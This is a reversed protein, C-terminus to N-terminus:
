SSAAPEGSVIALEAIRERVGDLCSIQVSLAALRAEAHSLEGLVSGSYRHPQFARQRMSGDKTQLVVAKIRQVLGDHEALAAERAEDITKLITEFRAKDADSERVPSRMQFQSLIEISEDDPGAAELVALQRLVPM